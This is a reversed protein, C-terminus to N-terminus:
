LGPRGPLEELRGDPWTQWWLGARDCFSVGSSGYPGLGGSSGSFEEGPLLNGVWTRARQEEDFTSDSDPEPWWHLMVRYVPQQSTNRVHVVVGTPEPGELTEWTYM